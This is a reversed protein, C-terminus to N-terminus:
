SKVEGGGFIALGKIVVLPADDEQATLDRKDSFGGLISIVEVKVNWETPVRLEAGGFLAFLDITAGSVPKADRLDVESGGFISTIKGGQLKHSSVRQNGGGFINLADFYDDEMERSKSYQRQRFLFALGIIILILPWWDRFDIYYMDELLFVGGIGILIIAATRNGSLLNIVGLAILLMQWTFLWWPLSPIMRLNELLILLGVVVLFIGLIARRNINKM